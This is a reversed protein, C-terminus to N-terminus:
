GQNRAVPASYPMPMPPAAGTWPTAVARQKPRAFKPRALPSPAIAAIGSSAVAEAAECRSSPAVPLLALLIWDILTFLM